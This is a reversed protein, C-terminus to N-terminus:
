SRRNIPGVEVLHRSVFFKPVELFENLKLSWFPVFLANASYFREESRTFMEHLIHVNTLVNCESHTYVTTLVNCESHTYV